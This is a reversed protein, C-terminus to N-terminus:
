YGGIETYYWVEDRQGWFGIWNSAAIPNLEASSCCGYHPVEDYLIPLDENNYSLHIEGDKKYFYFPKDNLVQFGFMEDYGYLDNLFKGDQYIQGVAASNVSNGTIMNTVSAIELTWHEDDVWLGLLPSIPSVDGGDVHLITKGDQQLVIKASDSARVAKFHLDGTVPYIAYAGNEEFGYPFSYPKEKQQAHRVQIAQQSGHVPQFTLPDLSAQEIIENEEITLGTNNPIPSTLPVSTSTASAILRAAPSITTTPTQLIHTPTISLSPATEPISNVSQNPQSCGYIIFALLTLIACKILSQMPHEM